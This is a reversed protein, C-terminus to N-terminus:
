SVRRAADAPLPSPLPELELCVRQLRLRRERALLCKAHVFLALDHRVQRVGASIAVATGTFASCATSTAPAPWCAPCDPGTQHGTTARPCSTRLECPESRGYPADPAKRGCGHQTTDVDCPRRQDNARCGSAFSAADRWSRADLNVVLPRIVVGRAHVLHSMPEDCFRMKTDSIWLSMCRPFLVFHLSLPM